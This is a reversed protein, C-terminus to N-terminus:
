YKINSIRSYFMDKLAHFERHYHGNDAISTMRGAVQLAHYEMQVFRLNQITNVKKM